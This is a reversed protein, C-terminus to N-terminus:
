HFRKGRKKSGKLNILNKELQSFLGASVGKGQKCIPNLDKQYIIELGVSYITRHRGLRCAVGWLLVPSEPCAEAM